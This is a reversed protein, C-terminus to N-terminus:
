EINEQGHEEFHLCHTGGFPRNTIVLSYPMVNWVFTDETTVTTHVGSKACVSVATHATIPYTSGAQDHLVASLVCFYVFFHFRYHWLNQHLFPQWSIAAAKERLLPLECTKVWTLASRSLHLYGRAHLLTGNFDYPPDPFVYYRTWTASCICTLVQKHQLCWIDGRQVGVPSVSVFFIGDTVFTHTRISGPYYATPYTLM